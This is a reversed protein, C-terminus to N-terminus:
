TQICNIGRCNTNYLAWRPIKRRYANNKEIERRIKGEAQGTPLSSPYSGIRPRSTFVM